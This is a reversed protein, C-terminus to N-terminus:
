AMPLSPHVPHCASGPATTGASLTTGLGMSRPRVPRQSKTALRAASPPSGRPVRHRRRVDPELGALPAARPVWRVAARWVQSAPLAPPWGSRITSRVTAFLTPSSRRANGKGRPHGGARSAWVRRGSRGLGARTARRPEVPWRCGCWSSAARARDESFGAGDRRADRGAAAGADARDGARGADPGAVPRGAHVDRLDPAANGPRDGDRHGCQRAGRGTGPRPWYSRSGGGASRTSPPMTWCTSCSRHWDCRTPM